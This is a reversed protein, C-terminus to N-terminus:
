SPQKGRLWAFLNLVDRVYWYTDQGRCYGSRAGPQNFYAPRNLLVMAREVNDDWRLPNLGLEKALRQADKVHGPGANYAALVFKLRQSSSPIDAQWIRDLRALYRSAGQIHADVGGSSAVGMLAATTPMMQMLGGAGAKSVAATDFRSEKYAVAALLKWDWALSDAHVQFLSDYPSITDTGMTFARFSRQPGRTDLGNDYAAILADRAAKEKGSALWTDLAHQLHPANTRVAFVLATSRGERPGFQVLPLRKAEMAATADSVLLPGHGGLATAILLEAPLRDVIRYPVKGEGFALRGASDLFSSWASVTITDVGASRGEQKADPRPRAYAHAVRRYPQTTHCNPSAWGNASLQAAIVDGQGNQLMLLMSDRSAVPVAKIPVHRRKAFRVLLEWELGTMAGTRVEWTLPDRIVLVRLTDRNIEGLDRAVHPRKTSEDRHLQGTNAPKWAAPVALLAAFLGTGILEATRM